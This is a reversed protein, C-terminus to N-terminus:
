MDKAFGQIKEAALALQEMAESIQHTAQAQASSLEDSRAIKQGMKHIDEAISTLINKIEKVSQESDMSMKRIEGAVVSFGRGHEGARASEISANLGLLNTKSAIGTIFKLIDDTKKLRQLVADSSTKLESLHAALNGATAAVEQSTATMEESSAALSQAIDQLELQATVNVGMGMAGIIQGQENRVPATVAKFAVGYAEKPVVTVQPSGSRLVEYMGDGPKVAEGVRVKVDIGKGPAYYVFRETDTVALMCDVPLITKFFPASNIILTLVDAGTTERHDM